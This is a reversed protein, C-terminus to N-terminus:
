APEHPSIRVIEAAYQNHLWQSLTPRRGNLSSRFPPALRIRFHLLHWAAWVRGRSMMTNSRTRHSCISLTSNIIKTGSIFDTPFSRFILSQSDFHVWLGCERSVFRDISTVDHEKSIECASMKANDQFSDSRDDDGYLCVEEWTSNQGSVPPASPSTLHLIRAPRPNRELWREPKYAFSDEFYTENHHPAYTPVGVGTHVLVHHGETNIGSFPTV